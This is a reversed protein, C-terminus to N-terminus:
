GADGAPIFETFEDIFTFSKMTELDRTNVVDMSVDTDLTVNGSGVVIGVIRKLNGGCGGTHPANRKFRVTRKVVKEGTNLDLVVGGVRSDLRKSVCQATSRMAPYLDRVQGTRRGNITGTEASRDRFCGTSGCEAATHVELDVVT